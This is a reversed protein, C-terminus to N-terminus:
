LEILEQDKAYPFWWTTNIAILGLFSLFSIYILNSNQDTVFGEILEFIFTVFSYVMYSLAFPESNSVFEFGLLSYTHVNVSSDHLGWLLCMVYSQFGFEM